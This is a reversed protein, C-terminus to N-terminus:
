LRRASTFHPSCSPDLQSQLGQNQKIFMQQRLKHHMKKSWSFPCALCLKYISYILYLSHSNKKGHLTIQFSRIVTSFINAITYYQTKGREFLCRMKSHVLMLLQWQSLIQHLNQNGESVFYM